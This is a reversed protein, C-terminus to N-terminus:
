RATIEAAARRGQVYGAELVRTRPEPNMFDGGM